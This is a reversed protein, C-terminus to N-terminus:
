LYRRKYARLFLDMVTANKMRVFRRIMKQLPSRDNPMTFIEQVMEDKIIAHLMKKREISSMPCGPLYYNIFVFTFEYQYYLYMIEMIDKSSAGNLLRKLCNYLLSQIEFKYHSYRHVLSGENQHYEYFVSTEFSIKKSNKFYSINFLADEGLNFETGFYIKHQEIVEKRYLKNWSSYALGKDLLKMFLEISTAYQISKLEDVTLRDIERNNKIISSGCVVLDSHDQEMRYLLVELYNPQLTDDSDTFQIFEGNANQLGINRANGPGNNDIHIVKIREDQSTYANCIEGSKDTSGDNILILEFTQLTQGLISEICRSLYKEANYVPIIVSILRNDEM